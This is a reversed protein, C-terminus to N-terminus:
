LADFGHWKKWPWDPKCGPHLAVTGPPLAFDRDSTMAFPPPLPGVWGLTRAIRDICALDGQALWEARPFSLQRDAKVQQGLPASWTTFTALAYHRDAIQPVPLAIRTNTTDATQFLQRIEPAGRLLDSAEVCDPALLVDVVYGLGRLVRILPTARLIDGIGSAVTVL